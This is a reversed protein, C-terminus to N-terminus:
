SRKKLERELRAIEDEITSGDAARPPHPSTESSSTTSAPAADHSSPNELYTLLSDITPFNWLLTEDLLIGVKDALAKAFEVAALSDVGHDAFSRRPDIRSEEVRLRDALWSVAWGRLSQGSPIGGRIQMTPARSADRSDLGGVSRDYSAIADGVVGAGLRVEPPPGSRTLALTAELNSRIWAMTRELEATSAARRQREVAGLLVISTTLEGARADLWHSSAPPGGATLLAGDRLAQVAQDVVPELGTGRFIEEGLSRLPELDGGLLGAGLLASGAEMPGEFGRLVRADDVLQRVQLTEVLGRRGLLQVLDDVAEWLMEPGVLKCVTFAEPIVDRGEDAGEALLRVLCELATVEATIRGLRVMTVPHAVLGAAGIQRQTAHQFILQSCRKMGGLCAAGIALHSHRIADFAVEGGQGLQGLVQHHKVFVGDLSLSDRLIGDENVKTARGVGKANRPVVFGSVGPRDKHRVFINLFGADPMGGTVFKRGHLSWGSGNVPDAHSLWTDSSADSGPEALAFGALHQGKALQPLLEQQLSAQGHQLIPWVGLYNNLGVFLSAGLDVGGLQELVRVTDGHGLALGGHEAGVQMGLLGQRAFESLAEPELSRRGLEAGATLRSHQRLWQVLRAATPSTSRPPPASARAPPDLKAGVFGSSAVTELSHSLFANRCAKRRVKGSTTRPLALPRLLVIAAAYLGHKDAVSNRIARFVDEPDVSRLATRKVEQAVVLSEGDDTDVSFAACRLPELAPHCHSVTDEIDQPYHNRGRVIILDKSRGTVFLNGDHLFGLDGTRLFPGRGTSTHAGFTERTDEAKGWYGAAVGSGGVWIEGIRDPACEVLTEPDVILLHGDVWTSGCGVLEQGNDSTEPQAIGRELGGRSFGRIAPGQRLEAGTVFLTAEALGYLAHFADRRFGHAAFAASFRELTAARVPESGDYAVSWSSLDLGERESEAISRACLDFAFDPGGSRTGRYQSIARLWRVPKQLFASPSMLVCTAGVWISQLVTGLGMDHFMPLWSIIVSHEDNKLCRQQQLHNGSLNAHTVIVGRPAGTSGSTYQLLAPANADLKTALAFREGSTSWLATDWRPVEALGPCGAFDEEYRALLSGVSLICKAGSDGAVGAVIELGRKRNPVSVPVAVVGACLCGLFAVIFDLGSPYFLLVREGPAAISSLRQALAHVATRLQAFTLSSEEREGDSLFLYARRDPSKTAWDSLVEPFTRLQSRDKAPTLETVM